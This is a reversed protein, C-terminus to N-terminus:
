AHAPGPGDAILPPEGKFNIRWVEYALLAWVPLWIMFVVGDRYVAYTDRALFHFSAYYIPMLATMVLLGSWPTFVAFPLVWLAYWPFQSPSLLVMAATVLGLRRLMDTADDIPLVIQGTFEFRCM